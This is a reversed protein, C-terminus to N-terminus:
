SPLRSLLAEADRAVRVSEAGVLTRPALERAREASVRAESARARGALRAAALSARAGVADRSLALEAFLALAEADRALRRLVQARLFRAEVGVDGARELWALANTWDRAKAAQRALASARAGAPGALPSRDVRVGARTCALHAALTALSLVDDFNHRFVEELLHPRGALFDFWAAPAFSGPLDRERRVGCLERELTGLRGDDFARGYLRRLPHYLDLHPREAFPPEVGHVRMKDQLRHRDFSKGFFTVLGACARVREAVDALLAAEEDPGRAFGQRVEFAGDVFGALGVLYVYTGAGGSLGTTEIDLFLVRELSLTALAPDGALWALEEGRADLAEDLRWDGHRHERALRAVRETCSGFRNALPTLERPEGVTKTREPPALADGDARALRRKFWDPLPQSNPAISAKPADVHKRLRKLRAFLEDSM